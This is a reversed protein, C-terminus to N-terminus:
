WDQANCLAHFAINWIKLLSFKLIVIYM